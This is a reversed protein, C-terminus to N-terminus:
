LEKLILRMVKTVSRRVLFIPNVSFPNVEVQPKLDSTLLVIQVVLDEIIALARLYDLSLIRKSM